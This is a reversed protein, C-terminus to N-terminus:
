RTSPQADPAGHVGALVFLEEERLATLVDGGDIVVEQLELLPVIVALARAGDEAGNVRDLPHARRHAVRGHGLERVLELRHEVGHARALPRQIRIQELQAKAGGVNELDADLGRDGAAVAGNRGGPDHLAQPRHRGRDGLGSVGLM